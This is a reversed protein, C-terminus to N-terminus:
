AETSYLFIRYVGGTEKARVHAVGQVTQGNVSTVTPPLPVVADEPLVTDIRGNLEWDIGLWGNEFLSNETVSVRPAERSIAVGFDRSFAITNHTIRAGSRGIYIGSAGNPRPFGNVSLGFKNDHISVFAASWVFVG